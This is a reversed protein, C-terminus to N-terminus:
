GRTEGAQQFTLDDAAFVLKPLEAPGIAIKTEVPTGSQHLVVDSVKTVGDIGRLWAKVTLAAVDRGFPWSKDPFKPDVAALNDALCKAAATRVMAVNATRAVTLRATIRIEVYRPPAVVLRQGLPVRPALRVRITELWADSEATSVGEADRCAVALLVRTGRLKGSDPALEVARAVGLDALGRAAAALDGSTVYPEKRFCQEIAKVKLDDLRDTNNGGSCPEGNVGYIGALGAVNWGLGAPLNGETGRCTFYDVTLTANAPLARGNIGNGFRILGEVPDFTFDPDDPSSSEFDEVQRWVSNGGFELETVTFAPKEVWGQERLLYTQDPLGTGIVPAEEHQKTRQLVPVVNPGIRRLRPPRLLGGPASQIVIDFGAGTQRRHPRALIIVGSQLMGETTDQVIDLAQSGNDDQLSARLWSRGPRAAIRSTRPTPTEVGLILVAKKDAMDLKGTFSLVLSDDVCPTPGFPLFTAGSKSNIQTQDAVRGDAFHSAVKALKANTLFQTTDTAFSPAEPYDPTALTGEALVRDFPGKGPPWAPNQEVPWILATAPVPRQPAVGLMKAYALQEDRRLRSLAYIQAEAEFALLEILMIGPDHINHDTWDPALGPISSRGKELLREFDIDDLNLRLDM